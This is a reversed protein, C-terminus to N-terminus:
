LWGIIRKIIAVIAWIELLVGIGIFLWIMIGFAILISDPCKTQATALKKNITGKMDDENM